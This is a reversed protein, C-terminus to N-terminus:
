IANWAVNRNAIELSITKWFPYIWRPDFHIKLHNGNIKVDWHLNWCYLLRMSFDHQDDNDHLHNTLSIQAQFTHNAATWTSQVDFFNILISYIKANPKSQNISMKQIEVCKVPKTRCMQLWDFKIYIDFWSFLQAYIAYGIYSYSHNVCECMTRM